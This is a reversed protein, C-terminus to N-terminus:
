VVLDHIKAEVDSWDYGNINCVINPILSLLSQELCFRREFVDSCGLQSLLEDIGKAWHEGKAAKAFDIAIKANERRLYICIPNFPKITEAIAQIYVTIDKDSSGRFIMENIPCQLFASDLILVSETAIDSAWSRWWELTCRAYEQSSIYKNYENGVDYRQLDKASEETCKRMDVFFYNDTEKIIADNVFLNTFNSKPIGAVHWFSSPLKENSELLLEASVGQNVLLKFIRESLTSKGTGPLGEVFILKYNSM